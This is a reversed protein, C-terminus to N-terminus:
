ASFIADQNSEILGIPLDSALQTAAAAVSSFLFLLFFFFSFPPYFLLSFPAPTPSQRQSLHLRVFPVDVTSQIPPCDLQANHPLIGTHAPDSVPAIQCWHYVSVRGKIPDGAGRYLFSPFLAELVSSCTWHHSGQQGTSASTCVLRRKFSSHDSASHVLVPHLAFSRSHQQVLSLTIGIQTDHRTSDLRAARIPLPHAIAREKYSSFPSRLLDRGLFTSLSLRSPFLSHLFSCPDFSHLAFWFLLLLALRGAATGARAM